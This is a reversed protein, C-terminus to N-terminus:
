AVAYEPIWIQASKGEPGDYRLAYGEGHELTMEVYRGRGDRLDWDPDPPLGKVVFGMAPWDTRFPVIFVTPLKGTLHYFGLIREQMVETSPWLKRPPPDEHLKVVKKGQREQREATAFQAAKRREASM